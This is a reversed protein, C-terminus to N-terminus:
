RSGACEERIFASVESPKAFIADARDGMMGAAILAPSGDQPGSDSSDTKLRLNREWFEHTEGDATTVRYTDRCHTIATVRVSAEANRLNPADRRTMGGMGGMMGGMGGQQATQPANGSSAAKLYAILDARMQADEIGPFTMRNGPIFQAPNRLWASLTQADWIVGSSRLVPSYRDFSKLGGAERDWIGALSPGTMNQDPRLSHCAACVAFARAGRRLDGDPEAAWASFVIMAAFVLSLVFRSPEM